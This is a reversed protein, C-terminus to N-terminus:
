AHNLRRPNRNACNCIELEDEYYVTTTYKRGPPSVTIQALRMPIGMADHTPEIVGTVIGIRNPDERCYVPDGANFPVDM